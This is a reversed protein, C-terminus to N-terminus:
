HPSVDDFVDVAPRTLKSVFDLGTSWFAEESDPEWAADDDSSSDSEFSDNIDSSQDDFDNKPATTPVTRKWRPRIDADPLVYLPKRARRAFM